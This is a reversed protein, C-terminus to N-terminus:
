KISLYGAQEVIQQGKVSLIYRVFDRVHPSAKKPLMLYLKRSIPYVGSRINEISATVTTGNVELALSRVSDGVYSVSVYAIAQDSSNVINAIDDNAELVIAAPSVPAIASGLVYQAFVYRTGRHMEKDILLIKRDAGGLQNWNTIKGRYIAALMNVTLQSVGSEQVERSVVPVVADLAVPLHQIEGIYLEEQATLERSMMAIDVRGDIIQGLGATSGGGSINFVIDPHIQEYTAAALKIYKQVTTSGSITIVEATAPQISLMVTWILALLLPYGKM